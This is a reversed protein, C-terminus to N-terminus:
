YDVAKLQAIVEQERHEQCLSYGAMNGSSAHTMTAETGGSYVNDEAPCGKGKVSNLILAAHKYTCGEVAQDLCPREPRWSLPEWSSVRMATLHALCLFCCQCVLDVEQCAPLTSSLSRSLAFSWYLAAVTCCAADAALTAALRVRAASAM